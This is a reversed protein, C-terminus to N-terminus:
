TLSPKCMIDNRNLSMELMKLTSSNSPNVLDLLGNAKYVLELISHLLHKDVVEKHFFGSMNGAQIEKQLFNWKLALSPCVKLFKKKDREDILAMPTTGSASYISSSDGEGCDMEIKFKIM